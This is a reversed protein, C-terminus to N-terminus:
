PCKRTQRDTIKMQIIDTKM